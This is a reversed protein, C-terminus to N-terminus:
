QFIQFAAWYYPHAYQAQRRLDAISWRLSDAASHGAALERYFRTMLERTARSDVSWSSAVVQRAGALILSRVLSSPNSPGKDEGTATLCASLVALRCRSFDMQAIQEATLLAAGSDSASNSLVLAGHGGNSFGHGSFHFYAPIAGATLRDLTADKGALVRPRPLDREIALTEASGEALFPFRSALAGTVTPQSVILSAATGKASPMPELPAIRSANVLAYRGGLYEGESPRLLDFPLQALAGDTVVFLSGRYQFRAVSPAVIQDYLWAAERAIQGADSGAESALSVIRGVAGDIQGASAATKHFEVRGSAISWCVYAEPLRLYVLWNGEAPLITKQSIERESEPTGSLYGSWLSFAKDTERQRVLLAVFDKFADRATAMAALKEHPNPLSVVRRRLLRMAEGLHEEAEHEQGLSAAAISEISARSFAIQFTPAVPFQRVSEDLRRMASRPNGNAVETAAMADAADTLYSRKLDSPPLNNLLADSRRLQEIADEARHATNALAAAHIRDLAETLKNQTEAMADVGSAAFAYAAQSYELYESAQSLDFFFQNLRNPAFAGQWWISTGEQATLWAAWPDGANTQFDTRIGMVRLRLDRFASNQMEREVRAIEIFAKGEQGLLATCVAHEIAAQQRLWPYPLSSLSGLLRASAEQCETARLGRHLAYVREFELRYELAPAEAAPGATRLLRLADDPRGSDNAGAIERIRVALIHAKSRTEKWADEFWRDRYSRGLIEGLSQAARDVDQNPESALWELASRNYVAEALRQREGADLELFAAPGGTIVRM